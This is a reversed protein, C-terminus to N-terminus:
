PSHTQRAARLLSLAGAALQLRERNVEPLRIRPATQPQRAQVQSAQIEPGPKLALMLAAIHGPPRWLGAAAACMIQLHRHVPDFEDARLMLTGGGFDDVPHLRVHGVQRLDDRMRLGKKRIHNDLPNMLGERMTEPDKIFLARFHRPPAYVVLLSALAGKV